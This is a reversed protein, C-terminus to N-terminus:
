GSCLINYAINLVHDSEFYPNRMKFICLRSNIAKDLGLQKVLMQITGIGGYSTGRNREAIDYHINGPSLMPGLDDPLSKKDLRKRIKSKRHALKKAIKRNM